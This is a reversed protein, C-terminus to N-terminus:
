VLRREVMSGSGPTQACLMVRPSGPLDGLTAFCGAARAEVEARALVERVDGPEADMPDVEMIVTVTALGGGARREDAVFGLLDQWRVGTTRAGRLQIIGPLVHLETLAPARARLAM